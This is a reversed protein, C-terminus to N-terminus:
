KTMGVAALVERRLKEADSGVVGAAEVVGLRRETSWLKFLPSRVARAVYRGPGLAGRRVFLKVVVAEVEEVWSVLM